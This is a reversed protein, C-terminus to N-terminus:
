STKPAGAPSPPTQKVVGAQALASGIQQMRNILEVAATAPLVLRCAPLRRGTLPANPKMDDFRNVGFEIRLMQGDFFLANISDAFTEAMEPRDVYRFTATQAQGSAPAAATGTASVRQETAATPKNDMKGNTMVDEKPARPVKSGAPDAVVSQWSRPCRSKHVRARLAANAGVDRVGYGDMM